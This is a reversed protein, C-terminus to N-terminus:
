QNNSWLSDQRTLQWSVWLSYLHWSEEQTIESVITALAVDLLEKISVSFEPIDVDLHTIFGCVDQWSMVTVKIVNWPWYPNMSISSLRSASSAMLSMLPFFKLPPRILISYELAYEPASLRPPPELRPRSKSVSLLPLHSSIKQM